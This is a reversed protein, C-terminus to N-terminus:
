YWAARVAVETSSGSGDQVFRVTWRARSHDPNGIVNGDQCRYNVRVGAVTTAGAGHVFLCQQDNALEFAWPPHRSVLGPSAVPSQVPTTRPLDLVVVEAKWPAEPCYARRARGFCPDRILHDAGACRLAEPNGPDDTSRTWCRGRQRKSIRLSAQIQDPASVNEKFLSIFRVDTRTIDPGGGDDGRIADVAQGALGTWTAIVTGVLGLVALAALVRGKTGSATAQEVGNRM